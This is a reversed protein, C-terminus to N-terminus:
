PRINPISLTWKQVKTPLNQNPLPTRLDMTLGNALISAGSFAQPANARLKM